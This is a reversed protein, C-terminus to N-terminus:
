FLNMVEARRYVAATVGGKTTITTAPRIGTAALVQRIRAPRTRHQRALATDYTFEEQFARIADADFIYACVRRPRPLLGEGVLQHVAKAPIGLRRVVEGLVMEGTRSSSALRGLVEEADSQEFVLPALGPTAADTLHGRLQGALLCRIVDIYSLVRRAAAMRQLADFTVPRAPAPASALRRIREFLADLDAMDVSRQEGNRHSRNWWHVAVLGAEALQATKGKRMGFLRDSAGPSVLRSLKGSLVQIDTRAYQCTGNRASAAHRIDTWLPQKRLAAFANRGLGLVRQVELPTMAEPHAKPRPLFPPWARDSIDDRRALHSAYANRLLDAYPATGSRNIFRHLYGYEKMIGRRGPRSARVRGALDDFADPWGLAVRAGANLVRRDTLMERPQLGDPNGRAIVLDMRGLFVLLDLLASLPLSGFESPLSKGPVSLGCHLHVVRAGTSDDAAASLGPVDLRAGCHCNQVSSSGRWLFAADCEPCRSMLSRGHRPCADLQRLSWIRRHYPAEALCDPCFFRMTRHLRNIPIRHGLVWGAENEEFGMRAFSSTEIGLLRASPGPDMDLPDGLEGLGLWGAMENGSCLNRAAVRLVFGCASEDPEPVLRLPQPQPQPLMPAFFGDPM